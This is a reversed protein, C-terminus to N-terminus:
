LFQLHRLEEHSIWPLPPIDFFAALGNLNSAYYGRLEVFRQWSEEPEKLTFGAGALLTRASEFQERTIAPGGDEAGVRFYTALDRTAHRALNYLIRAEGVDCEVTTILLVSSDLLTALTGVWSTEDHSSRFYALIPYALHTEMLAACWMEADRMLSPLEKLIGVRAAIALLGSGSPPIGARSSIMVVFQERNQFAGFIAFLYATTISVLGFGSAGAALSLMRTLGRDGVFDGFGITLFSTGAFYVAEGFTTIPPHVQDRLAYFIAGYGILLLFAWTVLNALLNVPAYAALFDERLNANHPYVVRALRPWVHWLWRAQYFSPRFVHGVSRPVIIAQFADNFSVAILLIGAIVLVARDMQAHNLEVASFAQKM